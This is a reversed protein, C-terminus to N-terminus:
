EDIEHFYLDVDQIWKKTAAKDHTSCDYGCKWVVMMEAPTDVKESYILKELRRSVTDVADKPSNFCTHGGTGMFRRKGRYGWYNFCDHSKLLPVRKGWASEKKAIGVLFAAVIKDKEIIYPVMDEIPYGAVMERIKSELEKKEEVERISELDDTVETVFRDDVHDSAGLVAPADSISAQPRELAVKAVMSSGGQALAQEGSYRYLLATVTAGLFIAGVLSARLAYRPSLSFPAGTRVLVSELVRLRRVCKQEFSVLRVSESDVPLRSDRSCIDDVPRRYRDSSAVIKSRKHYAIRNGRFFLTSELPKEAFDRSSSCTKSQAIPSVPQKPASDVCVRRRMRRLSRSSVNMIDLRNFGRKKESFSKRM